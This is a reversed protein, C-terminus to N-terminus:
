LEDPSLHPQDAVLDDTLRFVVPPRLLASTNSNSRHILDKGFIAVDGLELELHVEDYADVLQNINEPVIDTYSNDSLRSKIGGLAGERHSGRLVSMTGNETLSPRLFPLHINFISGFSPMYSSEQHWSYALRADDPIGLLFGSSHVQLPGDIRLVKSCLVAMDDALAGFVSLKILSMHLGHLLEQGERTANLGIVVDDIITGRQAFDPLQATHTQLAYTIDDRLRSLKVLDVAGRVLCFGDELYNYHVEEM